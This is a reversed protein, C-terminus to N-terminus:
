QGGTAGHVLPVLITTDILFPTLASVAISYTVDGVGSPCDAEVLRPFDEGVLFINAERVTYGTRYLHAHVDLYGGSFLRDEFLDTGGSETLRARLEAVLQPLTQGAGERGDVSLHFLALNALATTDLQRETTIRLVQHQNAITTKVEVATAGFAFDQAAALPGVWAEVATGTPIAGLLVRRLFYLEGYLGRQREAPLGTKTERLFTQWRRVREAVRVAVDHQDLGGAAASAVDTVLADFLDAFAPQSLVLELMQGGSASPVWRLDIGRGTPLDEIDTGALDVDILLARANTPKHVVLYLDAVSEQHIRRRFEGQGAGLAELESWIEHISV